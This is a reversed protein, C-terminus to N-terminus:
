MHRLAKMLHVEAVFAKVDEENALLETHLRKTAVLAPGVFKGARRSLAVQAMSGRGLYRLTELSGNQESSCPAPHVAAAGVVGFPSAPSM